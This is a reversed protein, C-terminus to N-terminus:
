SVIDDIAAVMAQLFDLSTAVLAEGIPSRSGTLDTDDQHVIANRRDVLLDLRVKVAVADPQGLRQAVTPWLGGEIDMLLRLAKAIKDARQFSLLEHQEVVSPNLWDDVSFGDETGRLASALPITFRNFAATRSREGRAAALMGTRVREHLYRDLAGVAQALAARLVDDAADQLVQRSRLYKAVALLDRCRRLSGEFADRPPSL